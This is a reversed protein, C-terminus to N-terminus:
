EQLQFSVPITYKVPVPKGRQIGPKWRPMLRIAELVISDFEPSLSRLIYPSQVSGDAAITVIVITREPMPPKVNKTKLLNEIAEHMYRMLETMGGPFEPMTETIMGPMAQEKGENEVAQEVVAVEGMLLNDEQMVISLLTRGTLSDTPIERENMGIYQILIPSKGSVKLKFRGQQDTITGNHTGKEVITAGPLPEGNSDKVTGTLTISTTDNQELAVHPTSPVEQPIANVQMTAASIGILTVAKGAARRLAIQRELYHLEAECQPCTGTCDEEFNCPQPCFDIENRQAINSRIEKLIKCTRKGQKM